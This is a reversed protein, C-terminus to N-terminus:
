ESYSVNIVDFLSVEEFQLFDAEVLLFNPVHSTSGDLYQNAGSELAEIDVGDLLTVKPPFTVLMELDVSLFDSLSKQPLPRGQVLVIRLKCFRLVPIGLHLGTINLELFPVEEAKLVIQLDSPNMLCIHDLGVVLKEMAIDPDTKPVPCPVM